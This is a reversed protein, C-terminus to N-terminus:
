LSTPYKSMKAIKLLETATSRNNYDYQLMTSIIYNLITNSSNINFTKLKMSESKIHSEFITKSCCTTIPDDILIKYFSMGLSWLDSQKYKTNHLHTEPAMYLYNSDNIPDIYDTIVPYFSDIIEINQSSTLFKSKKSVKIIEPNIFGHIINKSHIYEIGSLLDKLFQLTIYFFIPCQSKEPYKDAIINLSEELTYDPVFDSIMFIYENDKFINNYKIVGKTTSLSNLTKLIDLEKNIDVSDDNYESIKLTKISVKNNNNDYATYIKGKPLNLIVDNIIYSGTVGSTKINEM